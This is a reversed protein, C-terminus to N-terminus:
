RVKTRTALDFEEGRFELAAERLGFARGMIQPTINTRIGTEEFNTSPQGQANVVQYPLRTISNIVGPKGDEVIVSSSQLFARSATSRPGISNRCFIKITGTIATTM